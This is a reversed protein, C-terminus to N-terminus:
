SADRPRPRPPPPQGQAAAAREMMERRVESRSKPVPLPPRRAAAPKARKVPLLPRATSPEGDFFDELIVAAAISDVVEGVQSGKGGHMRQQAVATSFREDWLFVPLPAARQALELGFRTTVQAQEGEGGSSNYPMGLVIQRCDESRATRVLLQALRPFDSESANCSLVGLPLPAFGSSIAVGTRRLGFDIGLTRTGLGRAVPPNGLACCPSGRARHLVAPVARHLLSASLTALALAIVM